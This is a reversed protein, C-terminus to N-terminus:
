LDIELNQLVQMPQGRYPLLIDRLKTLDVNPAHSPTIIASCTLDKYNVVIHLGRNTLRCSEFAGDKSIQSANPSIGSRSSWSIDQWWYYDRLRNM